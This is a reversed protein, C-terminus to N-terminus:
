PCFQTPIANHMNEAYTSQTNEQQASIVKVDNDIANMGTPVEECGEIIIGNQPKYIEHRILVEELLVGDKYKQLYGNAEYGERPYSLRYYEGEFLVKSSYEKKTDKKIIDGTHPLVKVVEGRTKYTIGEENEHGYIEVTVTNPDSYTKIFIKHGTNNVFKLDSVYESVMADLALPVYKVPLTHKNVETIDVGATLLANYLTTSAQCVGGGVGDVFQSNYIITAVKYGNELTHPGTVKNFSVEEGNEVVKGNFKSLALKVNAKRGGTSDAVNTSFSSILHTLNENYEKTIESEQQFVPIKVRIKNSKLYEENIMNYLLTKDVRLGKKSESIEFMQANQPNFVIESDQPEIEIEKIIEDLKEDLGIFIYNFAINVANDKHSNLYQLQDEYTGVEAEHNQAMEVITHIDSNVKFDDKNLEWTKDNYTLILNFDKANENFVNSLYEVAEDKNMGSINYGNIYSGKSLTNNSLNNQMIFFQGVIVMVMVFSVVTLGCLVSTTNDKAKKKPKSKQTQKIDKKDASAKKVASKKTQTQKNIENDKTKKM